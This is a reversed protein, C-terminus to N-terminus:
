NIYTFDLPVEVTFRTGEPEGNWTLDDVQRRIKERNFRNYIEIQRDLISLGQKTSHLHPNRRAYDRGVGNDEVSVCVHREHQTVRITLLGGSERPMLGHKVANECYTHLIMNPLQVSRDVDEEVDIRFDFKDLFRIKELDLYMKVYALEESLPRAARDVESLTKFTFDSYIGLLRMAEEKTRNAIYYEIAALVNANFHPIAKLRISSIRLENLEKEARLKELLIRNRRRQIYLAIGAGALMLFAVVATLFWATQWFAPTVSFALSQTESRSEDTGADAYIEFTYNGPPLNNFTVERNKVPESWDDQFGCLRYRYRVNEVSSYCLGIFSFRINNYRYSLTEDEFNGAMEWHVNDTSAEQRQMVLNPLSVQRILKLPDFSILCDGGPLWFLGHRDKFLANIQVNLGIFGNNHNYHLFQLKGSHAYEPLNLFHIGHQTTILLYDENVTFIGRIGDNSFRYVTVLSDDLLLNLRSGSGSWIRGQEDRCLSTTVTVPNRSNKVLRVSDGEVLSIGKTGSVIWRDSDAILDQFDQQKLEQESYVRLAKGNRDCLYIGKGRLVLIRGGTYPVVKSYGDYDEMRYPLGAWSFRNEGYILVDNDRPFYLRGDISTSGFMFSHRESYPYAIKRTQHESMCLLEGYFTGIRFNGDRDELVTKVEDNQLRYNKFDFQFFNYLGDFSAVWVNNERDRFLDVAGASFGSITEVTGAHYRCLKKVDKIVISGDFMEKARTDKDFNCSVLRESSDETIRCIGDPDFALLGLTRHLLLSEAQLGKIRISQHTNMDYINLGHQSPLYIKKNQVDFFPKSNVIENLEPCRLVETVTDDRFHMLYKQSADENEFILYGEPLNRSNHTNLFIGEPVVSVKRISDNKDIIYVDHYSYARVEGNDGNEFHLINIFGETLFPTFIKGDFRAFGSYTGIWLFGRKDQFVTELLMNPLGDATTYRRYSYESRILEEEAAVAAKGYVPSLTLTLMLCLEIRGTIGTMKKLIFEVKKM